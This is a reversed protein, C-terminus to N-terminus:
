PGEAGNYRSKAMTVRVAPLLGALGDGGEGAGWPFKEDLAAIVTAPLPQPPTAKIGGNPTWMAWTDLKHFAATVSEDMNKKVRQQQEFAKPKLSRRAMMLVATKHMQVACGINERLLVVEREGAERLKLTFSELAFM